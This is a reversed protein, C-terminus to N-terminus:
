DLEGTRSKRLFWTPFSIESIVMGALILTAGILGRAGFREGIAWYAYLAAFVPEMCFILATHTPSTFRQMSTQVLFAFITAFLVCIVLAWLIEHHWVLIENGGFKAMLISFFAVVGIQITTLWYVDSERAFRGTFILHLAICAACTIALIDGRNFSWGGNTCLLYLGAAALIVGLKVSHNVSHRLLIAGAIPVLVVNLGTLFATNSATTYLLAMTQFAFSGFLLAGMIMGGKLYEKKFPRRLILCIVLLILFALSFRQSLFLFVGVQEVAQKVIVFTTGWFFTTILLLFYAGLRRAKRSSNVM